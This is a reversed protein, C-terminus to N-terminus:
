ADKPPALLDLDKSPGVHVPPPEDPVGMSVSEEVVPDFLTRRKELDRERRTQWVPCYTYSARALEDSASIVPVADGWCFRMVTGPDSKVTLYVGGTGERAVELQAPDMGVGSEAQQDALLIGCVCGGDFTTAGRIMTAAPCVPERSPLVPLEHVPRM